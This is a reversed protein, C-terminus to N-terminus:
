CVINDVGVFKSQTLMQLVKTKAETEKYECEAISGSTIGGGGYICYDRADFRMCRLNVFAHYGTPTSLAVVGGYCGRTHNELDAIDAIARDRPTGCVAPTPNLADITAALMSAPAKCRVRRCLHEIEGFSVNEPDGIVPTLGLALLSREIYDVVFQNEIQNKLDWPNNEAVKRTGAFAMTSLTRSGYDYDVLTEPTAALWGGTGPTYFIYRFTAPNLKFYRMAIMGISDAFENRSGCITRSIVIKGSRERCREVADKVSRIYDAYTTSRRPMESSAELTDARLIGMASFITRDAFRGLWPTVEFTAEGPESSAEADEPQLGFIYPSEEGPLIAIAFSSGGEIARDIVSAIQQFPVETNM